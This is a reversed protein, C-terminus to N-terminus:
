EPREQGQEGALVKWEPDPQHNARIVGQGETKLEYNLGEATFAPLVSFFLDENCSLCHM